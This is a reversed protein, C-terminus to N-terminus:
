GVPVGLLNLILALVYGAAALQRILDGVEGSFRKEILYGVLYVAVCINLVNGLVM